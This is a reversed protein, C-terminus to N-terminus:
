NKRHLRKKPKILGSYAGIISFVPVSIRYALINIIGTASKESKFIFSCFLIFVLLLAGTILGCLLASSSNVKATIFGGFFASIFLAALSGGVILRNPDKFSMSIASFIFSLAVALAMSSAFGIAISKILRSVTPDSSEHNRRFKKNKM